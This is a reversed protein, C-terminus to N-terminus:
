YDRAVRRVLEVLEAHVDRKDLYGVAGHMRAAEVESDESSTVIVVRIASSGRRLLRTAEAGGLRPMNLDMVVVHPHTEAAVALAEFGDHAEGVVTLDPEADLLSGVVECFRVDDDVVLVRIPAAPEM